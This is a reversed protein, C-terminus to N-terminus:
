KFDKRYESPTKKMIVKFYHNFNALNNYGCEYCIHTVPKDTEALLKAAIGIRVSKVYEMFTQSTKKKFYRCFSSPEMYVLKAADKLNIGEQVNQFVYEYIKDIQERDKDYTNPLASPLALYERDEIKLLLNFVKLLQIYRELGKLEVMRNLSAAVKETKPGKFLIGSHAKKLLDVVDELEPINFFDSSIINEYFHTVVCEPEMGEDTELVEWCHSINPGLLVLDGPTYSSIHNGVIRRGSGATILNLEFNKHSHIKESNPDMKLRRTIFSHKNPVFIKEYVFEM